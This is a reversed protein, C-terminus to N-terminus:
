FLKPRESKTWRGSASMQRILSAIDANCLFRGDAGDM